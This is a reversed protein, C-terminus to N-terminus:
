DWWLHILNEELLPALLSKGEEEESLYRELGAKMMISEPFLAEIQLVEDETIQREFKLKLGASDAFIVRCPILKNIKEANEAVLSVVSEVDYGYNMAGHSGVKFKQVIRKIPTNLPVSYIKYEQEDELLGFFYVRSFDGFEPLDGYVSDQEVLNKISWDDPIM